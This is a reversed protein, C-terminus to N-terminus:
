EKNLENVVKNRANCIQEIICPHDSGTIQTYAWIKSNQKIIDYPIDESLIVFNSDSKYKELVHKTSDTSNNEYVIIKYKCFLEGTEKAVKLNFDLTDGCNKVVGCILVRIDM